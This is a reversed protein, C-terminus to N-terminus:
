SNAVISVNDFIVWASQITETTMGFFGFTIAYTDANRTASGYKASLDISVHLWTQPNGAAYGDFSYWKELGSWSSDEHKFTFQSNNTDYFEQSLKIDFSLTSNKVDITNSTGIGPTQALDFSAFVRGPLSSWSTNHDQFTVKLASNSSASATDNYITTATSGNGRWQGGSYTGMELNYASSGIAYAGEGFHLEDLWMARETGSNQDFNFNFVLKKISTLDKGDAIQNAPVTFKITQWSSTLGTNSLNWKLVSEDSSNKLGIQLNTLNNAKASIELSGHSLDVANPLTLTFNPWGTTSDSVPMYFAFGSNANATDTSFRDLIYKDNSGFNASAYESFFLYDKSALEKNYATLNAPIVWSDEAIENECLADSFYKHCASCEYYESNGDTAGSLSYTPDTAAHQVAQHGTPAIVWSNEAIENECLADSFYKHCESCQYYANNGAETCTAANAAYATPNHGLAPIVWTNAEIEHTCEADSFYKDCESCSYYATNGAEECTAASAAHLVASHGKAAIVWSNEEIEHTCQEDSFFKGCASCVYYASNGAETCSAPVAAHLVGSHGKAAITLQELSKEEKNSDFLKHCRSCEYHAEVGTHTCDADVKAILEGYDHGLKAIKLADLTTEHKESDFYKDCEACHYHAALGDTECGPDVKAILDGYTHGKADIALADLTTEVKQETFYKECVSCQYHAAVGPQECSANVQAILNGYAHDGLEGYEAECISCHAKHLCDAVGGTHNEKAKTEGCESCVQWHQTEDHQYVWTHNHEPQQQEEQKQEEQQDKQEEQKQEEQKEPNVFQDILNKAPYYLNTKVWSKVEQLSCSTLGLSAVALITFLLTRKKKM